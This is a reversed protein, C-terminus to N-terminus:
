VRNRKQKTKMIKKQREKKRKKRKEKKKKEKKKEKKKKEKKKKEKKKKEENKMNKKTYKHTQTDHLALTTRTYRQQKSHHFSIFIFYFILALFHVGQNSIGFIRDKIGQHKM